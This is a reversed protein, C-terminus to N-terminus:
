EALKKVITQFESNLSSNGVLFGDCGKIKVLDNINSESVSGGYIIRGDIKNLNMIKRIISIIEEIESVSAAEGSGIAWIPEYAIDFTADTINKICNILQENLYEKYNGSKREKIPEGICLVPKLKNILSNKLKINIIDDTEFLLTRRESHGVLVYEFGTNVLMNASIEGTKAGSEFESVDQAGIKINKNFNNKAYEIFVYPIAIFIEVNEPIKNIINFTNKFTDSSCNMKWNGGVLKKM